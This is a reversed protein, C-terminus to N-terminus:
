ESGLFLILKVASHLVAKKAKNNIPRNNQDNLEKVNDPIQRSPYFTTVAGDFTPFNITNLNHNDSRLHRQLSRMILAYLLVYSVTFICAVCTWLTFVIGTAHFSHSLAQFVQAAAERQEPTPMSTPDQGEILSQFHKFDSHAAGLPRIPLFFLSTLVCTFSFSWVDLLPTTPTGFLSCEDFVLSGFKIAGEDSFLPSDFLVLLPM